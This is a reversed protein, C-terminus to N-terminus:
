SQHHERGPRRCKDRHLHLEECYSFGSRPLGYKVIRGRKNIMMIEKGRIALLHDTKGIQRIHRLVVGDLRSHM